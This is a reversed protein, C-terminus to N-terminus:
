GNDKEGVKITSIVYESKNVEYATADFVVQNSIQMNDVYVVGNEVDNALKRLMAAYKARVEEIRTPASFQMM